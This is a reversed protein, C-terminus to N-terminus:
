QVNNIALVSTAINGLVRSVLDTLGLVSLRDIEPPVVIVSGPPIISDNNAVTSEGNPLLIYVSDLDAIKTIGGAAALYDSLRKEGLYSAITDKQVAGIVSVHAPRQPITLVDGDQLYVPASIDEMLINIALRGTVDQNRLQEAYGLVATIQEGAGEVDSQSVQLVAEELQNALIANSSRQTVKMSERTFIAGLPYATPRLGGTKAIVDHLTEGPAFAYVGPRTVAGSITITGAVADNILSNVEIM